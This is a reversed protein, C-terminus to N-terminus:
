IAQGLTTVEDNHPYELTHDMFVGYVHLMEVVVCDEHILVKHLTTQEPHVVGIAVECEVSVWMICLGCHTPENLTGILNEQTPDNSHVETLFEATDKIFGVNDASACSSKPRIPSLGARNSVLSLVIHYGQAVMSLLDNRLETKLEEKIEEKIKEKVVSTDSRTRKRYM